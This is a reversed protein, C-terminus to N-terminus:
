VSTSMITSAWITSAAVLRVKRGSFCHLAFNANFDARVSLTSLQGAGLKGLVDEPLTAAVDIPVALMQSSHPMYSRIARIFFIKRVQNEKYFPPINPLPLTLRASGSVEQRM